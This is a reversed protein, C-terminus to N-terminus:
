TKFTILIALHQQNSNNITNKQTTKSSINYISGTFMTTIWKPHNPSWFQTKSSIPNSLEHAKSSDSSAESLRVDGESLRVVTYAAWFRNLALESLRVSLLCNGHKSTTSRELSSRLSGYAFKGLSEVISNAWAFLAESLRVPDQAVM